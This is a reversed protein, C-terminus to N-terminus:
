CYDGNIQAVMSDKLQSFQINIIITKNFSITSFHLEIDADNTMITISDLICNGCNHLRCLKYIQYYSAHMNSLYEGYTNEISLENNDLNSVVDAYNEILERFQVFTVCTDIIKIINEKMINRHSDIKANLVKFYIDEIYGIEFDEYKKEIFKQRLKEDSDLYKGAVHNLEGRLCQASKKDMLMIVQMYADMDLSNVLDLTDFASDFDDM